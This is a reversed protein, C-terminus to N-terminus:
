SPMAEPHRARVMRAMGDRWNIQAPGILEHMRTNDTAVSPLATACPDFLATRGVMDGMFACWEEISVSDPGAWNLTTAPVSAVGLLKPIQEIVDDAHIPNYVSPADTGVVIPDDALIQELHFAPWGGNDGYPVNLRAIVTPLNFERAAFRAVVEASIKAISYTPMLQRHNDGLPDDEAFRHHGDPQYIGTSSCHLFARASRCHSMLLGTSEANAALDREFKGSKVVALNLVYDFDRPLDGFDGEVLNAEVCTVGAEEMSRRVANDRFRAMGWVDNDQALARTVPEAVQGTPGTVLIKAGSM